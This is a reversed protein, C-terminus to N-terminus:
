EIRTSTSGTEYVTAGEESILKLLQSSRTRFTSIQSRLRMDSVRQEEEPVHTPITDILVSLCDLCVLAKVCEDKQATTVANTTNDALYLVGRAQKNVQETRMTIYQTITGSNLGKPYNLLDRINAETAAM